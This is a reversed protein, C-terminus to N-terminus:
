GGNAIRRRRVISIIAFVIIMGFAVPLGIAPFVTVTLGLGSRMDVGNASAIIVGVMALISLGGITAIMFALVRETRNLPVATNDAM